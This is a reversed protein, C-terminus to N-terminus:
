LCFPNEAQYENSGDWDDDGCATPSTFHVFIYISVHIDMYSARQIERLVTCTYETGAVASHPIYLTRQSRLIHCNVISNDGSRIGALVSTPLRSIWVNRFFQWQFVLVSWCYVRKNSLIDKASYYRTWVSYVLRSSVDDDANQSTPVSKWTISASGLHMHVLGALM